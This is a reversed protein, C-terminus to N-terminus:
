GNSQQLRADNGQVNIPEEYYVLETLFVFLFVLIRLLLSDLLIM